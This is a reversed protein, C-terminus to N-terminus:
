WVIAPYVAGMCCQIWVHLSYKVTLYAAYMDYLIRQLPTIKKQKKFMHIPTFQFEIEPCDSVSSESTVYVDYDLKSLENGVNRVFTEYGGISYPGKSGIIYLKKMKM